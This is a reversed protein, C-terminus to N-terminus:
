GAGRRFGPAQPRGEQGRAQQSPLSNGADFLERLARVTNHMRSKVTGVPIGLVDSVEGYPMQQLVALEFVLRHPQSLREVAARLREREERIEVTAEPGPEAVRGFATEPEAMDGGALLVADLSAVKRDPRASRFEDIWLNTAVRFMYTSLKGQPSYRHAARVLKMFVTQTLDEARARDWCLRYFFQVLRGEFRRVLEDFASLDGGAYLALLDPGDAGADEGRTKAAAARARRWPSRGVRSARADPARVEDHPRADSHPKSVAM